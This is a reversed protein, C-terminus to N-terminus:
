VLLLPVSNEPPSRQEQLYGETREHQLGNEESSGQKLVGEPTTFLAMSHQFGHPHLHEGRISLAQPGQANSPLISTFSLNFYFLKYIDSFCLLM